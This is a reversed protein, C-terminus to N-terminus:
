RLPRPEDEEDLKGSHWDVSQVKDSDPDVAHSYPAHFAETGIQEESIYHRGNGNSSPAATGNSHEDGEPMWFSFDLEDPSGLEQVSVGLESALIIPANKAAWRNIAQQAGPSEFAQELARAKSGAVFLRRNVRNEQEQAYVEREDDIQKAGDDLFWIIAWSVGYIVLTAPLVWVGYIGSVFAPIQGGSELNSDLVLNFVVIVWHVAYFLYGFIQQTGSRFWFHLALPLALATLASAGVALLGVIAYGDPVFRSVLNYFHFETYGVIVLYIILSIGIGVKKMGDIFRSRGVDSSSNSMKNKSM